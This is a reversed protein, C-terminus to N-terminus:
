LKIFKERLKQSGNDAQMFYMGAKLRSVDL